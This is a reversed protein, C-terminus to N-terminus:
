ENRVVKEDYPTISEQTAGEVNSLEDKKDLAAEVM